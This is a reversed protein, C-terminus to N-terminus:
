EDVERGESKPFRKNNRPEKGQQPSRFEIRAKRSEDSHRTGRDTRWLPMCVRFRPGHRGPRTSAGEGTPPNQRKPLLTWFFSESRAGEAERGRAAGEGRARPSRQRTAPDKAERLMTVGGEFVFVVRSVREQWSRRHRRPALFGNGKAESCAVIRRFYM